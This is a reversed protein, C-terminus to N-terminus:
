FPYILNCVKEVVALMYKPQYENSIEVLQGYVQTGKNVVQCVERRVVKNFKTTRKGNKAMEKVRNAMLDPTETQEIRAVKYGREVLTTSMRGFAQEPFGSHAFEGKM